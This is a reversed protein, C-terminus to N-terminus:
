VPGNQARQLFERVSVRRGGPPQVELLELAGDGCAVLWQQPSSPLRQGPLGLGTVVQGVLAHGTLTPGMVVQGTVVQARWVKVAQGAVEATAGPFPDFARVRREIQAASQTWDIAAEAKDIKHAYSVGAEPQAQALALLRGERLAALGQLMLRAGMGALRDHLSASTDSALIPTAEKILMAGTDLGADMQM